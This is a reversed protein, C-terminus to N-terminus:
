AGGNGRPHTQRAPLKREARRISSGNGARRRADSVATQRDVLWKRVTRAVGAAGAVPEPTQGSAVQGVIRERARPTLRANKHMNM